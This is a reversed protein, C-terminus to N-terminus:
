LVGAEVWPTEWARDFSSSTEVQVAVLALTAHVQAGALANTISREIDALLDPNGAAQGSFEAHEEAIAILREAATYHEPGNV